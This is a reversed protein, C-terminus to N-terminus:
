SFLQKMFGDKERIKIKAFANKDTLPTQGVLLCFYFFAGCLFFLSFM